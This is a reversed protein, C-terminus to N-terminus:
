FYNQALDANAMQDIDLIKTLDREMFAAKLYMQNWEAAEFFAAPYPNNMAIADFVTAVNTRLASVATSKFREPHPLLPLFKLFGELESTDAVQLITAVWPQFVEYDAELVRIFLYVQCLQPLTAKQLLLYSRLEDDPIQTLDNKTNGVKSPLLSCTLYLGRKSKAHIIKDTKTQLWSKSAIPLRQNIYQTIEENCQHLSM